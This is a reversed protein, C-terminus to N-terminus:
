CFVPISHLEVSFRFYHSQLPFCSIKKFLGVLLPFRSSHRTCHGWSAPVTGQFCPCLTVTVEGHVTISLVQMTAESYPFLFAFDWTKGLGHLCERELTCKMTFSIFNRAQCLGISVQQIWVSTAKGCFPDKRAFARRNKNAAGARKRDSDLGPQDILWVSLTASSAHPLYESPWLLVSGDLVQLSLWFFLEIVQRRPCTVDSRTVAAKGRSFRADGCVSRRPDAYVSSSLIFWSRFLLCTRPM